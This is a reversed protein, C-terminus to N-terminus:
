SRVEVSSAPSSRSLWPRMAEAMALTDRWSPEHDIGADDAIQGALDYIADNETLEYLRNVLAYGAPSWFLDGTTAAGRAATAAAIVADLLDLQSPRSLTTPANM